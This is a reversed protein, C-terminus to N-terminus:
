EHPVTSWDPITKNLPVATVTTPPEIAKYIGPTNWVGDIKLFWGQYQGGFFCMRVATFTRGNWSVRNQPYQLCQGAVLEPKGLVHIMQQETMGYPLDFQYPLLDTYSKMLVPKSSDSHNSSHVFPLGGGSFWLAFALIAVIVTLAAGGRTLRRKNRPSVGAAFDAFPSTASPAARFWLPV